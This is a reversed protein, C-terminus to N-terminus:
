DWFQDSEEYRVIFSEEIGSEKMAKELNNKATTNYYYVTWESGKSINDRTKYLYPLDAKGASWGIIVVKNVDSLSNWFAKNIAIISNTNKFISKLYNAIASHISSEGENYEDAAEYSWNTHQEIDISNCHGMIPPIDSVSTVGGHIHLVNEIKYIRELVDTYNFNLFLSNSGILTNRKPLVNTTDISEVWELVYEQFKRIFGYQSRWYEDMTDKIGINGGDLNLEGLISQSYDLMESINPKGMKEEFERWLVINISSYFRNRDEETIRPDSEDIHTINYLEEFQYLYDPYHNDLFTRFSWYSTDLGHAIDFGNGIIYLTKM